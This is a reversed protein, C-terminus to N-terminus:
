VSGSIGDLFGFLGEFCLCFLRAKVSFFKEASM